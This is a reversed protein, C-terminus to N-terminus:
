GADINAVKGDVAVAAHVVGRGAAAGAHDHLGVHQGARDIRCREIVARTQQQGGAARRERLCAHAFQGSPAPDHRYAAAELAHVLPHDRPAVEDFCRDAIIHERAAFEGGHHQDIGAHAQEGAHHSFCTGGVSSLKEDPRISYGCNVRGATHSSRAM